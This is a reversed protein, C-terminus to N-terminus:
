FCLHPHAGFNMKMDVRALCCAPAPTLPQGNVGPDRLKAVRVPNGITSESPGYGLLVSLNSQRIAIKVNDFSTPGSPFSPQVGPEGIQFSEPVEIRDADLGSAPRCREAKVDIRYVLCRRHPKQTVKLATKYTRAQRSKLLRDRHRLIQRLTCDRDEQLAARSVANAPAFDRRVFHDKPYAAPRAPPANQDLGMWLRCFYTRSRDFQGAFHACIKLRRGRIHM